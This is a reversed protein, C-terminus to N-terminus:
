SRQLKHVQKTIQGLTDQQERQNGVYFYVFDEPSQLIKGGHM